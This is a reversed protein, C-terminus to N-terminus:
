IERRVQSRLFKELDERRIVYRGGKGSRIFPLEGALIAGRLFCVKLGTLASCELLTLALRQTLPVEIPLRSTKKSDAQAPPM